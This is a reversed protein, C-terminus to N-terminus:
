GDVVFRIKDGPRILFTRDRDPDLLRLPTRGIIRWGGPTSLAYIGTQSGAIGVSGPPVQIRPTALRPTALAPPLGMLYTFGPAFGLMAVQYTVAVHQAIVDAPTLGCHTAVDDLDPGDSGGYRVPIKILRGPTVPRQALDGAARRLLEAQLAASDTSLPDFIILLSRYTPVREVIGALPADELLADLAHVRRNLDADVRDGFEITFATEGVPLIRPYAPPRSHDGM